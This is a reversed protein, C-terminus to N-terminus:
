IWHWEIRGLVCYIFRHSDSTFNSSKLTLNPADLFNCLQNRYSLVRTTHVHIHISLSNQSRSNFEELLILNTIISFVVCRSSCSTIFIILFYMNLNFETVIVDALMNFYKSQVTKSCCFSLNFSVLGSM